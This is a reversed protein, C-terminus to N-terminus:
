PTLSAPSPPDPRSGTGTGLQPSARHYPQMGEPPFARTPRAVGATRAWNDVYRPPPTLCPTHHRINPVPLSAAPGTDHIVTAKVSHEVGGM